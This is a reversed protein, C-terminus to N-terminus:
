PDAHRLPLPKPCLYLPFTRLALTDTLPLKAFELLGLRSGGPLSSLGLTVPLAPSSGILPFPLLKVYLFALSFRFVHGFVDTRAKGLEFPQELGADAVPWDERESGQLAIDSVRCEVSAL